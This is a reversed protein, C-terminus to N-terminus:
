HSNECPDPRRLRRDLAHEFSVLERLLSNYRSYARNGEGALLQYLELEAGNDEIAKSDLLGARSLRPSAIRVMCSAITQRGAGHDALGERVLDSGPLDDLIDFGTSKM